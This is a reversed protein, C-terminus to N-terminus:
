HTNTAVPETGLVGADPIESVVFRLKGTRSREIRDVYDIRVSVLDGLRLRTEGLLRQEDQPGYHKGRVIRYVIEGPREQYIQAERISLADKFIHDMRGVRAGNRLIVYDEQRGDVRQVLRGPHGCPCTGSLLTVIDGTDYRVLPTAPNTFNTGVVRYTNEYSVPVFEVAAFDEDTHLRGRECESFNAIAEAMGYHQMPKVGFAKRILEAQQPLLNEAGTTIWRVQYGPDAGTELVYAAVLVLVSPYGHLWPPRRHRLEAVYSSLNAPSMHYASFLIQRGPSNVRWFPPNCRSAPVIARGGFYGCWTDLNIGHWRRYRWWVAWQEREAGLTTMFRFGSGTTGSTHVVIQRGLHLGEPTFENSHEQVVGKEMVPLHRLDSLCRLHSPDVGAERFRHRYFPVKAVVDRMFRALRQDRFEEWQEHSWHSRAEADSLVKLFGNGYRRRQVRWGELNCALNQLVEPMRSYIDGLDRLGIM